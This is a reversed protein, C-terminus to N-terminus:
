KQKKNLKLSNQKKNENNYADKITDTYGAQGETHNHM